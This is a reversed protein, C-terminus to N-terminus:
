LEQDMELLRRDVPIWVPDQVYLHLENFDSCSGAWRTLCGTTWGESISMIYM